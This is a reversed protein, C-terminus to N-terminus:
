QTFVKSMYTKTAQDDAEIMKSMEPYFEFFCRGKYSSIKNKAFHVEFVPQKLAKGKRMFFVEAGEGNYHVDNYVMLIAKAEFKIKSSERIDDPMPRRAGNMKKIEGTCILLLNDNIAFDACVEALETYREKESRSKDDKMKLDHFNDITVVIKKEIGKSDFYAIKKEVIDIIDDIYQVETSDYIQYRDSLSKLKALAKKRRVIVNPSASFRSPNKAANIEINATSAIFRPVKDSFPDDLSFAMLYVDDNNNAIGSELESIFGTKGLNSDGGIIIFQKGGLCGEFAKDISKIGTKVGLGKAAWSENDFMDIKNHMEIEFKDKPIVKKIKFDIQEGDSDVEGYYFDEDEKTYRLNDVYSEEVEKSVKTTEKPVEEDIYLEDLDLDDIEKLDIDVM